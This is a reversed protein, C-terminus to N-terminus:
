DGAIGSGAPGINLLFRGLTTSLVQVCQVVDYSSAARNVTSADTLDQYLGRDGAVLGSTVAAEWVNNREVDVEVAVLREDAYDADTAAIAKVLVGAINTPATTSTAAILKGSSWAVLAGAAIATSATVQLWMQKTKGKRRVFM